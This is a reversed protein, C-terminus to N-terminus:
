SVASPTPSTRCQRPRSHGSVFVLALDPSPGVAELVAGVVEGVAFSATPHTSIAAGFAAAPQM